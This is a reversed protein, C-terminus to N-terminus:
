ESVRRYIRSGFRVWEPGLIEIQSGKLPGERLLLRDDACFALPVPEPVPPPEAMRKRFSSELPLQHLVLADGALAIRIENAPQRYTGVVRAGEAATHPRPAADEREVGLYRKWAWAAMASQVQAAQSTNTLMALAFRRSPAIHLLAQQGITAGGHSIVDVGHADEVAWAIGRWQGLPGDVLHSRMLAMSAPSLYRAGDATTGDGMHFRAYSLLQPVTSVIGGLCSSARALAWPRAVRPRGAFVNHGSAVRYTIVEDAFFFTRGLGLPVLLLERMASEIPRETVKEVIRGALAFAANNYAWTTGVPVQQEFTAMLEVYRALADDSSGTDEFHDGFWGATHTLLHRLTVSRAADEDRLRLEPIWRRVPLELDLKGEDVLRMVLTGLFTKTISGVQFLTDADVAVPHDVNTIGFPVVLEDDGLAVGVVVGPIPHRAQEEAVIRAVEATDAAREIARAGPSTAM